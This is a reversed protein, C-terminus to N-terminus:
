LISNPFPQLNPLDTHLKNEIEKSSFIGEFTSYFLVKVLMQPDFANQCVNTNYMNYLNTLDLKDVVASIIRASHNPPVFEELSLPLLFTQGQHYPKFGDKQVMFLVASNESRLNNVIHNDGKYSITIKYRKAGAHRERRLRKMMAVVCFDGCMTCPGSPPVLDQATEPDIAHAIQGERDLRSRSRALALDADDLGYNITDGTHAAIRFAILGDRV